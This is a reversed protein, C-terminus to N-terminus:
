TRCSESCDASLHSDIVTLATIQPCSQALENFITSEKLYRSGFAWENCNPAVAMVRQAARFSM